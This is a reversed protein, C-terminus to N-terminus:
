KGPTASPTPTAASLPHDRLFIIQDQQQKILIREQEDRFADGAAQNAASRRQIVLAVDLDNTLQAKKVEFQQQGDTVQMTDGTDKITRVPSGAPVGRLGSKLPVTVDDTLYFM